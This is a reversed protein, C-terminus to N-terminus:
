PIHPLSVISTCFSPSSCFTSPSMKLIRNMEAEVDKDEDTKEPAKEEEDGLPYKKRGAVNRDKGHGNTSVSGKESLDEVVPKQGLAEQGKREVTAPKGNGVEAREEDGMVSERTPAKANASDKAAVEADRLRESMAVALAEDDDVPRKQRSPAIHDVGGRHDSRHSNDLADKTRTYFDSSASRTSSTLYLIYIVFALVLLGFVRVRRVSPM